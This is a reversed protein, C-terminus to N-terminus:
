VYRDRPQIVLERPRIKNMVDVITQAQDLTKFWTQWYWKGKYVVYLDVFPNAKPQKKEFVKKM